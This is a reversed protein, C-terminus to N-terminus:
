IVGPIIRNKYSSLLKDVVLNGTGYSAGDTFKLRFEQNDFEAINRSFYRMNNSIIDQILIECAEQIDEPASRYGFDAELLYDNGSAFSIPYNRDEWVKKYEVKNQLPDAHVISTKDISIKYENLDTDEYDYILTGNEYLYYMKNIREDVPLYDLGMGIIERQKRIFQFSGTEAEIIKRAVKEAAICQATTISLLGKVKTIDCYPKVVDMGTSIINTTGSYVNGYLSGSYTLYRSNLTFSVEKLNNSIASASYASGTILDEYQMTYLASASAVTFKAQVQTTEPLRLIEM